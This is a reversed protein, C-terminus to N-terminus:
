IYVIYRTRVLLTRLSLNAFRNKENLRNKCAEGQARRNMANRKKKKKLREISVECTFHITLTRCHVVSFLFSNVFSRNEVKSIELLKTIFVNRGNDTARSNQKSRFMMKEYRQIKKRNKKKGRENKESNKSAGFPRDHDM